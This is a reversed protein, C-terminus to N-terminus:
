RGRAEERYWLEGGKRPREVDLAEPLAAQMRIRDAEITQHKYDDNTIRLAPLGAADGRHPLRSSSVLLRPRPGPSRAFRRRDISSDAVRAVATALRPERFSATVENGRIGIRRRCGALRPVVAVRWARSDADIAACPACHCCIISRTTPSTASARYLLSSTYSSSMAATSWARPSRAPFTGACRRPNSTASM